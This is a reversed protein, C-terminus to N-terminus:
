RLVEPLPNHAGGPGGPPGTALLMQCAHAQENTTIAGPLCSLLGTPIEAGAPAGAPAIDAFTTQSAGGGAVPPDTVLTGGHGDTALNFNTTKYRGLLVLHVTHTGRTVTLTGSTNSAAETFSKTTGTGFAIGRLDIRDALDPKGFGKIAGTFGAGADLELTGGSVFTVTGSATGGRTVDLLGGNITGGSAKGHVIETGGKSLTTGSATGSAAVIERGGSHVIAGGAIGGALIQVTVGSAVDYRNLAYGAGIDLKGGASITFSAVADGGLLELTGGKEVIEIGGNSVTVGIATGFVDQESQNSLLTAGSEVGGALIKESGGSDILTHIAIGGASILEVSLAHLLAAESRGRSEIELIGGQSAVTDFANGDVIQEGGSVLTTQFATAGGSVVQFSPDGVTTSSAVAGASLVQSGGSEILAGSATGGSIVTQQGAGSVVTGSVVAEAGVVQTGGSNVVTGIANGNSVVVQTGGSAVVTASTVGGSLMTVSGGSLVTVGSLTAGAVTLVGTVDFASLHSFSGGSAIAMTGADSVVGGLEIADGGATVNLTAGAAVTLAGGVALSKGAAFSLANGGALTLSDITAGTDLTVSGSGTAGITVDSDPLPVGGSWDAANSWVGSGGLWADATTGPTHFVELGIAGATINYLAGLTLSGGVNVYTSNGVFAGEALSGFFGPVTGPEFTAVTFAQGEALSFGSVNAVLTGGSLAFPGSVALLGAQGAGTGGLLEALVGGGSEAYSGSITLTAASGNAEAEVMGGANGVAGVVTGAGQLAGGLIAVGSATGGSAVTESGGSITTGSAVGGSSVTETGGSVTAGFDTGFVTESGGALIM